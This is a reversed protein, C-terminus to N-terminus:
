DELGFNRLCEFINLFANNNNTIVYHGDGFVNSTHYRIQCYNAFIHISKSFEACVLLCDSNEISVTIVGLINNDLKLQTLIKFHRRYKQFLYGLPCRDSVMFGAYHKSVGYNLISM